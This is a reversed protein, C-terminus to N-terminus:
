TEAQSSRISHGNTAFYLALFAGVLLSPVSLSLIVAIIAPIAILWRKAGLHVAYAVAFFALPVAVLVVAAANAHWMPAYDFFARYGAIFSEYDRIGVYSFYIGALIFIVVVSQKSPKM